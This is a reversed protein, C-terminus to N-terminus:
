IKTLGANQIDVLSSSYPLNIGNPLFYATFNSVLPPSFSYTVPLIM